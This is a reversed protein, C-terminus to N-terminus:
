RKCVVAMEKTAEDRTKYVKNGIVVIKTDAPKTEVIRCDANGERVIYFDALAPTAIATIVAAVVFLKTRM